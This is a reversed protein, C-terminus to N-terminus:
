KVEYDFDEISSKRGIEEEILFEEEKLGKIGAVISAPFSVIIQNLRSINNNVIRKAAALQENEDDIENQLNLFEDSSRLEPYAEALAYIKDIARDQNKMSRNFDQISRSERSKTIDEIIGKEYKTFSKAVKIMEKITDYRKALAIDVNKKSENIIVKYRNLKNSVSIFYGVIIILIIGVPIFIFERLTDM